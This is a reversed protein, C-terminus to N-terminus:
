KSEQDRPAGLMEITLHGGAYLNVQMTHGLVMDLLEPSLGTGPRRTTLMAETLVEGARIDRRAVISKRAVKAIALETQGPRKIGDGLAAEVNRISTMMAALEDPELSARHDPGPLSRDLTFHKEIIQAGMAVAAIPVEIGLSHDSYGIPVKFATALTQLARLNLQDFAAPYSTTCHLLAFPTEEGLARTAREVEGMYAMGTSIILPKGKNALHRLFPTNTLEGSAVKFLPLGLGDLFDASEADFPTSLFLIGRDACHRLLDHHAEDSLELRKLMAYQSEDAGTTEKQYDAKQAGRSVLTEARFTQFKVADCGADAAADVLQKAMELSGNHNVGAEAIVFAGDGEGIQEGGQFRVSGM